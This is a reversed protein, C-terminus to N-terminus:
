SSLTKLKRSINRLKASFFKKKKNYREVFIYLNIYRNLFRTFKFKRNAVKLITKLINKLISKGNFEYVNAMQRLIFFEVELNPVKILSPDKGEQDPAFTLYGTEFLHSYLLDRNPIASGKSYINRLEALHDLGDSDCSTHISINDVSLLEQLLPVVSPRQFVVKIDEVPGSYAWYNRVIDKKLLNLISFTSYIKVNRRTVYGDYWLYAGKVKNGNLGCFPNNFLGDVETELLGYFNAYPHDDLFRFTQFDNLESFARSAVIHSVGTVIAYEVNNDSKCLATTQGIVSDFIVELEQVSASLMARMIISDYGDVLVFVKKSFHVRLSEVLTLLANGIHEDSLDQYELEDCWTRCLTRQDDSLSYSYSLYTHEKYAYHIRTALIQLVETRSTVAVDVRLDLHLVPYMGFHEYFFATDNYISLRRFATYGISERRNVYNGTEDM